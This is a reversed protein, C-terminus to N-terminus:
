PLPETQKIEGLAFLLSLEQWACDPEAVWATGTSHPSTTACLLPALPCQSFDPHSEACEVVLGTRSPSAWPWSQEGLVFVFSRGQGM